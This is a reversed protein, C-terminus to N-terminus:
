SCNYVFKLYYQGQKATAVRSNGTNDLFHFDELIYDCEANTLSNEGFLKCLQKYLLEKEPFKDTLNESNTLKRNLDNEIEDQHELYYNKNLSFEVDIEVLIDEFSIKEASRISEGQYEEEFERLKKSISWEDFEERSEFDKIYNIYVTLQWEGVSKAIFKDTEVLDVNRPSEDDDDALVVTKNKIDQSDIDLNSVVVDSNEIYLRVNEAKKGGGM